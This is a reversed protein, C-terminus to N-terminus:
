DSEEMMSTLLADFNRELADCATDNGSVRRLVFITFSKFLEWSVPFTDSDDTMLRLAEAM